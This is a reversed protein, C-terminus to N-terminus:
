IIHAAKSWSSCNIKSMLEIKRLRARAPHLPSAFRLRIEVEAFAFAYCFSRCDLACCWCRLQIKNTERWFVYFYCLCTFAYWYINWETENLLAFRILYINDIRRGEGIKRGGPPIHRAPHSPPPRRASDSEEFNINTESIQRPISNRFNSPLASLEKFSLNLEDCISMSSARASTPSAKSHEFCNAKM